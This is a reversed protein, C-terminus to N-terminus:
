PEDATTRPLFISFCSGAGPSSTVDITGQHRHVISRTLMLGIGTGRDGKTSFFRQFLHAQTEADMGCCTDSVRYCVGGAPPASVALIIQQPAATPDTDMCADIANTVLNLLCQYIGDPDMRVRGLESEIELRLEM